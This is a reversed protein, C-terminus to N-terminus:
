ASNALPRWAGEKIDLAEDIIALLAEFHKGWCFDRARHQGNRALRGALPTSALIQRIRQALDVPDFTSFFLAADRCVERHVGRDSAVLPRGSAMAEVMPHGFSEAYSPCVVVDAARYLSPLREHAVTGLMTVVDGLRLEEILRAARSTDYRHDKVGVGLRTTLVLEIPERHDRRLLAVARLLTEFNRFYNYHSVMLIRRVGSNPNLTPFRAADLPSDNRNFSDHAFGHSVVRFREAPVSPVWNRIEDRFAATPVVNLTAARISASALCRRARINCREGFAGHRKLERIHETSFYLPNRSLLVQPVPPELLGFNGTALILDIRRTRILRRLRVQDHYLRRVPGLGSEGWLITTNTAGAGPLETGTPAHVLWRHGGDDRALRTLLNRLYTAGGGATAGLSHVLIRAM